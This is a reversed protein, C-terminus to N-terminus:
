FAFLFKIGLVGCLKVCDSQLAWQRIDKFLLRIGGDGGFLMDNQTGREKVGSGWGIGVVGWRRGVDWPVIEM